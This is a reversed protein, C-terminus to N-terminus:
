GTRQQCVIMPSPYCGELATTATAAVARSCERWWGANVDAQSRDDGKHEATCEDETGYQRDGVLLDAFDITAVTM